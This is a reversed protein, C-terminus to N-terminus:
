SYGMVARTVRLPLIFVGPGSRRKMERDVDQSYKARLSLRVTVLYLIEYGEVVNYLAAKLM